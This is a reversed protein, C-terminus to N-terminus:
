KSKLKAAKQFCTRVLQIPGPIRDPYYKSFCRAWGDMHVKAERIKNKKILQRSEYFETWCHQAAGVFPTNGPVLAPHLVTMQEGQQSTSLFNKRRQEPSWLKAQERTLELYRNLSARFAPLGADCVLSMKAEGVSSYIILGCIMWMRIM